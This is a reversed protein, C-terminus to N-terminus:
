GGAILENVALEAIKHGDLVIPVFDLKAYVTKKRYQGNRPETYVEIQTDVCDVLWFEAIGEEAYLSRKYRRDDLVSSDAVEIVIALDASGPQRSRSASPSSRRCTRLATM